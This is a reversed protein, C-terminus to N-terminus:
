GVRTGGPMVARRLVAVAGGGRPGLVKGWFIVLRKVFMLSNLGLMGILPLLM